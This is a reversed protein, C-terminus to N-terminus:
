RVIEKLIITTFIVPGPVCTRGNWCYPVMPRKIKVSMNKHDTKEILGIIHTKIGQDQIVWAKIGRDVSKESKVKGSGAIVRYRCALYDSHVRQTQAWKLIKGDKTVSREVKLGDALAIRVAELTKPHIYEVHKVKVHEPINYFDALSYLGDLEWVDDDHGFRRTGESFWRLVNKHGANTIIQRDELSRDGLKKGLQFLRAYKERQSLAKNILDEDFGCNCVIDDGSGEHEPINYSDALCYLGDLDWVDDDHEFRRIGDKCWRLVNKHGANTIIQRDELSRDGLKEGVNYLRAYKERKGLAKNIFDEDFGCNCVIDDGSGEHRLFRRCSVGTDWVVTFRYDNRRFTDGVKLDRAYKKKTM